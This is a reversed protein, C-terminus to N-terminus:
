AKGPLTLDDADRKRTRAHLWSTWGLCATVGLKTAPVDDNRLALQVDWDADLGPVQHVLAKLRDKADQNPLFRLFQALTLPGLLIRFRHHRLYV